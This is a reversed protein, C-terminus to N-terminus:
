WSFSALELWTEVSVEEARSSEKINVSRLRSEGEAKNIGAMAWNNLLTKRRQAFSIKLMRRWNPDTPLHLRQIIDIRVISSHVKPIPRFAGPPVNVVKWVRGMAELTVGLPCRDKSGKMPLMREASERQVMLVMRKLGALSLDELLKWVMPTTIHYPLNAIVMDPTDPLQTRLDLRLADAWILSLRSDREALPALFPELRRDLEISILKSCPRRLIEETLIGKGPGIELIVEGQLMDSADVIKEVVGRNILFNQGIDTNNKFKKFEFSERGELRSKM